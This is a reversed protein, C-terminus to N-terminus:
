RAKKKRPTTRDKAEAIEDDNITRSPQRIGPDIRAVVPALKAKPPETQQQEIMKRYDVKDARFRDIQDKFYLSLYQWESETLDHADFAEAFIEFKTPGVTMGRAIRFLDDEAIGLGKALAKLKEVSVAATVVQGNEILNVYGGSIRGGSRKEVEKLSLNKKDRTAKVFEALEM